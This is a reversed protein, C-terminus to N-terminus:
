KMFMGKLMDVKAKEEPSMDKTFESLLIDIEEPSFSMNRKKLETNARLLQPLMSEPSQGKLSAALRTVLELKLPDINSINM